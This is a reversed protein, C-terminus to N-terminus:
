QAMAYLQTIRLDTELVTVKDLKEETTENYKYFSVYFLLLKLFTSWCILIPEQLKIVM